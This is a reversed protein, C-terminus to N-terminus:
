GLQKHIPFIARSISGLTYQCQRHRCINSKLRCKSGHRLALLRSRPRRGLHFIPYESLYDCERVWKDVIDTYAAQLAGPLDTQEINRCSHYEGGGEHIPMINYKLQGIQRRSYIQQHYVVPSSATRYAEDLLLPRSSLRHNFLPANRGGRNSAM